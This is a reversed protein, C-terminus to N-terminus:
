ISPHIRDLRALSWASTATAVEPLDLFSRLSCGSIIMILACDRYFISNSALMLTSSAM